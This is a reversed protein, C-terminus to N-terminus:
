LNILKKMNCKKNYLKIKYLDFEFPIKKSQLIIVILAFFTAFILGIFLLDEKQKLIM